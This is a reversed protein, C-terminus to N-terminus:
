LLKVKHTKLMLKYRKELLLPIVKSWSYQMARHLITSGDSAKIHVDAGRTILLEAVAENSAHMLATQENTNKIDVFMGKDLLLTVMACDGSARHLATQGYADKIDVPVKRDFLLNIVKVWKEQVAKHLIPGDKDGKERIDIGRTILLEATPEDSVYALAGHGRGNKDNISVGKDLLLGIIKPWKQKVALHLITDSNAARASLDAGKTILIEATREDSASVLATEKKINVININIGRALM